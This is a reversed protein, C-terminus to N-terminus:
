ETAMKKNIRYRHNEVTRISINLRLSIDKNTYGQIALQHIIRETNTLRVTDPSNAILSSDPRNDKSLDAIVTLNSIKKKIQRIINILDSKETAQATAEDPCLEILSSLTAEYLEINLMERDLLTQKAALQTNLADIETNIIAKDRAEAEKRETIDVATGVAYKKGDEAELLIYTSYMWRWEGSKHKIRYEIIKVITDDATIQYKGKGYSHIVEIDQLNFLSFFNDDYLSMAEETTYGLLTTIANNVWICHREDNIFIIIPLKNLLVSWFGGEINMADHLHFDASKLKRNEERLREIEEAQTQVLEALQENSPMKEEKTYNSSNLPRLNLCLLAFGLLVKYHKITQYARLNHHTSYSSNIIYVASFILSIAFINM